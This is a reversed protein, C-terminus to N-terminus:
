GRDSRQDIELDFKLDNATDHVISSDCFNLHEENLAFQEPIQYIVRDFEEICNHLDLESDLSLVEHKILGKSPSLAMEENM